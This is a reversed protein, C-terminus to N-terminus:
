AFDTFGLAFEVLVTAYARPAISEPGNDTYVMSVKGRNFAFPFAVGAIYRDSIIDALEGDGGRYSSCCGGFDNFKQLM